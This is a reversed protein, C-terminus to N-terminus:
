GYDHLFKYAYQGKDLSLQAEDPKRQDSVPDLFFEANGYTSRMGKIM